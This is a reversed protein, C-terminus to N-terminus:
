GVMDAGHPHCRTESADAAGGGEEKIRRLLSADSPCSRGAAAAAESGEKRGEIADEKAEPTRASAVGTTEGRDLQNARAGVGGRRLKTRGLGSSGALTQGQLACVCIYSYPRHPDKKTRWWLHLFPNCGAGEQGHFM